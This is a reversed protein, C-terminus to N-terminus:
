DDTKEEVIITKASLRPPQVAKFQSSEIVPRSHNKVWSDVEEVCFLVRKGIKHFPIKRKGVYSYLTPVSLGILKSVEKISVLPKM